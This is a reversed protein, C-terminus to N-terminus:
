RFSSVLSNLLEIISTTANLAYGDLWCDLSLSLQMTDDKEDLELCEALSRPQLDFEKAYGRSVGTSQVASKATQSGLSKRRSIGPTKTM